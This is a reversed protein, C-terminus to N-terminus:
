QAIFEGNGGQSLHPLAPTAVRGGAAGKALCRSDGGLSPVAFSVM